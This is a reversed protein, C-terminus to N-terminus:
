LFCNKKTKLLSARVCMITALDSPKPPQHPIPKWAGSDEVEAMSLLRVQKAEAQQQLAADGEREMQVIIKLSPCQPVLELLQARTM